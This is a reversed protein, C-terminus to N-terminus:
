MKNPTSVGILSMGNKIVYAVCKLIILKTQSTAKDNKIFRHQDNDRGLNWYSHFLTALEYLYVPIRHPEMKETSIHVCKPWESLKKIIQKEHPNINFKGKFEIKDNLDKKLNRFVSCIRAYCYQVYYVPNDKSKETVKKFDFELEVDNSRSLMIFRVPDKGVEKILDEVTIYDCKRKSMVFPKGEKLLKVLQSVKCILQTKNESLAKVGASIRKIYGAHDSGLINILVDFKREIKNDHYALDGAFYTWSSDNKQLPRDKDDGYLTSKFLHTLM